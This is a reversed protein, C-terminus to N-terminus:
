PTGPRAGDSRGRQRRENDDAIWRVADPDVIRCGAESWLKRYAEPGSGMLRRYTAESTAMWIRMERYQDVTAGFGQTYQAFGAESGLTEPAAAKMKGIDAEVAEAAAASDEPSSHPSVVHCMILHELMHSPDSPATQMLAAKARSALVWRYWESFKIEFGHSAVIVRDKNFWGKLNIQVLFQQLDPDDSDAAGAAMLGQGAEYGSIPDNLSMASVIQIQWLLIREPHRQLFPSSLETFHKLLARQQGLDTAQQAQRALSILSNYEIRDMGKLPTVSPQGASAAPQSAAPAAEAAKDAGLLQGLAASTQAVAAADRRAREQQQKALALNRLREQEQRAQQQQQEQQAKAEKASALYNQFVGQLAPMASKAASLLEQQTNSGSQAAPPAAPSAAPPAASRSDAGTINPVMHSQYCWANADAYTKFPGVRPPLGARQGAASVNVYWDARATSGVLLCGILVFSRRTSQM